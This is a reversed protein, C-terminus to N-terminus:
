STLCARRSPHARRVAAPAQYPIGERRDGGIRRIGSEAPPRHPDSGAAITGGTVEEHTWPWVLRFHRLTRGTGSRVYIAASLRFAHGAITAGVTRGSDAWVVTDGRLWANLAQTDDHRGDGWLVLPAPRCNGHPAAPAPMLGALLALAIAAVPM